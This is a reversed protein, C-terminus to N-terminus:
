AGIIQGSVLTVPEGGGIALNPRGTDIILNAGSGPIGVTLGSAMVAGTANALVAGAAVGFALSTTNQPVPLTLVGGAVVGCPVGLPVSILLVAASSLVNLLGPGGGGDIASVVGQLRANIAAQSYNLSM